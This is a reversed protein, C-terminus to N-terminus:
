TFYFGIDFYVVPDGVLVASFDKKELALTVIAALELRTTKKSIKVFEEHEIIAFM